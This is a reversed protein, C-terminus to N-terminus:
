LFINLLKITSTKVLFDADMFEIFCCDKNEESYFLFHAVYTKNNYEVVVSDGKVFKEKM